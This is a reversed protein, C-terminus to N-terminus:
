LVRGGRLVAGGGYRSLGSVVGPLRRNGSPTPRGALAGGVADFARLTDQMFVPDQPDPWSSLKVCVTGTRRSVHLMQGHIGLCLLVDGFEGPRFWFQNRYWGGPFSREAPSAAFADRVDATVGWAQRLWQAPVVSRAPRGSDALARAAPESPPGADSGGGPVAGGDLLLQGFRALDRATAGLGGDHIATGVGDCFLEAEHEAGMPAWVLTSILDAMRAGGARECVWGLADSQASRYLFRGGHPGDARLTALFRYLGLPEDGAGHPRWGIWEDLRRVEADPNTYEERFSVGSRMDLLHRVTAGAFGSDGLEPVYGTVLADPDLDGRGILVAAVCGVVSKTISMVSHTRDAAGRPGYWQEVLEGDQLVVWADTFTQDLVDGVLSKTGDSRVLDIARIDRYAPQVLLPRVAGVGCAVRQTPLLERVHWFAWRNFPPSQWNAVTAFPGRDAPAGPTQM